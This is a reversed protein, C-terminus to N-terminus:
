PFYIDITGSFHENCPPEGYHGCIPLYHHNIYGTCTVHASFYDSRLYGYMGPTCTGGASNITCSANANYTQNVPDSQDAELTGSYYDGAPTYATTQVDYATGTPSGYDTVRRRAAVYSGDAFNVYYTVDSDNAGIHFKPLKAQRPFTSGDRKVFLPGIDGDTTATAAITERAATFKAEPAHAFVLPKHDASYVTIGHPIPTGDPVLALGSDPDVVIVVSRHEGAQLSVAVFLVASLSIKRLLTM